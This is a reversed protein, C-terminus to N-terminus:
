PDTAVVVVPILAIHAVHWQAPLVFQPQELAFEGARPISQGHLLRSVASQWWERGCVGRLGPGRARVRTRRPQHAEQALFRDHGDRGVHLGGQALVQAIEHRRCLAIEEIYAAVEVRQREVAVEVVPEIQRTHAVRRAGIGEAPFGQEVVNEVAVALADGGRHLLHEHVRAQQIRCRACALDDPDHEGLAGRTADARQARVGVLHRQLFCALHVEVPCRAVPHPHLGPEERELLM